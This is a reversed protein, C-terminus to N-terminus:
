PFIHPISLIILIFKECIKGADQFFFKEKQKM